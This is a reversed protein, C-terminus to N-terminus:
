GNAISLLDVLLLRKGDRCIVRVIPSHERWNSYVHFQRISVMTLTFTACELALSVLCVADTNAPVGHIDHSVEPGLTVVLRHLADLYQAHVASDRTDSVSLAAHDDTLSVIVSFKSM